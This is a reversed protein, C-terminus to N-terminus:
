TAGAADLLPSVPTFPPGTNPMDDRTVIPGGVVYITSAGRSARVRRSAEVWTIREDLRLEARRGKRGGYAIRKRLTETSATSGFAGRFIFLKRSM